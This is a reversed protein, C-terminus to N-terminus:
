WGGLTAVHINLVGLQSLRGSFAREGRANEKQAIVEHISSAANPTSAQQDGSERCNLVCWIFGSVEDIAVFAM